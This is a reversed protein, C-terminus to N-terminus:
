PLPAAIPWGNEWLLPSIKLESRGTAGHYAHFVLYDGWGDQLVACHGPGKWNDTTAQLVVTGGGELLSVGDRDEYPGTINKSRGVMIKYTSDVGRCCVDFSVFVYWFLGNKVIFPAEVAGNAGGLGRPRQALSYLTTDTASLKGTQPDIRRMKIGSWFSGFSMWVKGDEEIAINADIANWDDKGQTSRVVLGHDVWKCDPNNSDLTQATALGIASSNRGFTSVSYYLHYRGNFFSIDPAWMGSAGPIEGAVWAPLAEFVHGCLEWSLLDTSRRVPVIGGRRGGGTSFVYFTEGERIIVPDHVRLDGKCDLMQLGPDTADAPCCSACLMVWVLGICGAM